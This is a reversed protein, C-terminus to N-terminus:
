SPIASGEAAYEAAGPDGIVSANGLEWAITRSLGEEYTHSEDFGLERRLRVTNLVLDQQPQYPARLHAPLREPDLSIVQGKWGMMEGIKRVRETMTPTEAEGVNYVRGAAREDVVALVVALAVNEVYGHTWRWSSQVTELLIVPRGDNMRKIYPRLRHYPDGPGYVAPLRLITAPLARSGMMSQEVLIKEYHFTWDAPGAATHRYPFHVERLPAEETLPVPELPGPESGLVRGYARYVDGSSLAVLRRAVGAFRAVAARADDQGIPFM